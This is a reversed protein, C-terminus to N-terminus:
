APGHVGAWVLMCDEGGDAERCCLVLLTDRCALARSSAWPWVPLPAQQVMGAWWICHSLLFDQPYEERLEEALFTGLGSGTGGAVSQLLLFGGFSDCREVQPLCCCCPLLVATRRHLGTACDHMAQQARRNVQSELRM